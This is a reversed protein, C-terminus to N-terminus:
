KQANGSGMPDEKHGVRVYQGWRDESFIPKDRDSKTGSIIQWLTPKIEGFDTM